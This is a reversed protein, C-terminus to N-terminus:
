SSPLRFATSSPASARCRPPTRRRSSSTPNSQCRANSSCDFPKTKPSSRPVRKRRLTPCSWRHFRSAMLKVDAGEKLVRAMAAGAPLIQEFNDLVILLQKDRVHEVLADLPERSGVEQVGIAQGVASAVLEPDSIPALPVFYVGHTFSDRAEAAIQLSLRTKGTGGPGTLTLLRSQQLLQRGQALEKDRGVFSTLQTPLNNAVSDLSKLAPFEWSLGDIKLQYLHEARTLDKLRHEGLDILSVGEPLDGEALSRTSASLVVQGGHAASVIRAARHVDLGVYDTEAVVHAEGTHLGMRVWIPADAPWPHAALSRQAAACAAVADTARAFVM